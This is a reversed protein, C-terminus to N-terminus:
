CEVIWLKSTARIVSSSFIRVFPIVRKAAFVGQVWATRSEQAVRGSVSGAGINGVPKGVFAMTRIVAAMIADQMELRQVLQECLLEMALIHISARVARAHYDENPRKVASAFGRADECNKVQL